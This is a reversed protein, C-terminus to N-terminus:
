NGTAQAMKKDIDRLIREFDARSMFHNDIYGTFEVVYSGFQAYAICFSITSSAVDTCFVKTRQAIESVYSLGKSESLNYGRLEDYKLLADLGQRADEASAFRAITQTSINQNLLPSRFGVSVSEIATDIYDEEKGQWEQTWGPSYAAVDLLLDNIPIRAPPAQSTISFPFCGNLMVLTLLWAAIRISGKM